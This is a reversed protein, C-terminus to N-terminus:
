TSPSDHLAKGTTRREGTRREDCQHERDGGGRRRRLGIARRRRGGARRHRVVERVHLPLGPLGVRLLRLDVDAPDVLLTALDHDTPERCCTRLKGHLVHVVPQSADAAMRDHEDLAEDLRVLLFAGGATLLEDVVLPDGDDRRAGDGRSCLREVRRDAPALRDDRADGDGRDVSRRLGRDDEETVARVDEQREAVVRLVDELRLGSRDDVRVRRADRLGSLHDRGAQLGGTDFGLLDAVGLALGVQGRRQRRDSRRRRVEDGGVARRGVARVLRLREQLEADGVARLIM